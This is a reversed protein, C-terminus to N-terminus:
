QKEATVNLSIAIGNIKYTSTDEYNKPLYTTPDYKKKNIFGANKLMTSLMEDDFSIYHLNGEYEQGGHIARVINILKCKRALYMSAMIEFDPVSIYIKGGIKLLRHLYNLYEQNEHMKIHELAHCMYIEDVQNNEFPLNRIDCRIDLKGESRADINIYEPLYKEGCGLHLKLKETTSKSREEQM